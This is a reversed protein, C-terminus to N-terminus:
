SVRVEIPSTIRELPANNWIPAAVRRPYAAKQVECGSILAGIGVSTALLTARHAFTDPANIRRIREAPLKAGFRGRGPDNTQM